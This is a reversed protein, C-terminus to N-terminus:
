RRVAPQEQVRRTASEEPPKPAPRKGAMVGPMTGDWVPRAAPAPKPAPQPGAAVPKLEVPSPQDSWPMKKAPAPGPPPASDPVGFNGVQEVSAPKSAAAQPSPQDSWPMKQAPAPGSQAASDPVGFNAAQGSSLQSRQPTRPQPPTPRPVLRAPEEGERPGLEAVTLVKPVVVEVGLSEYLEVGLPKVALNHSKLHAVAEVVDQSSEALLLVVPFRGRELSKRLGARFGNESWGIAARGSFYDGPSRGLGKELVSSFEEPPMRWLRGTFVLLEQVVATLAGRTLQAPCGVLSIGGAEDIAALVRAEGRESLMVAARCPAVDGDM